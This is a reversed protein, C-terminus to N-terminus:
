NRPCNIEMLTNYKSDSLIKHKEVDYIFGRRQSLGEYWVCKIFNNDKDLLANLTLENDNYASLLKDLDMETGNIINKLDKESIELDKLMKEISTIIGDMDSYYCLVDEIYDELSEGVRDYYQSAEKIESVLKDELIEWKEDTMKPYSEKKGEIFKRVEKEILKTM